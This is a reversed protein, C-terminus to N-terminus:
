DLAEEEEPKSTTPDRVRVMNIGRNIYNYM